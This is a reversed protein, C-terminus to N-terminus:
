QLLQRPIQMYLGPAYWPHIAGLALTLKPTGWTRVYTNQSYIYQQSFLVRFHQIKEAGLTNSGGRLWTYEKCYYSHVQVVSALM